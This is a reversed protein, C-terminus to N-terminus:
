PKQGVFFSFGTFTGLVQIIAFAVAFLMIGILANIIKSKAKALGEKDGGSTLWDWAGWILMFILVVMAMAYILAVLNSLFKSIGVSGFGFNMIATPPIIKGFIKGVESTVATSPNSCQPPTDTACATGSFGGQTYVVECGEPNCYNVQYKCAGKCNFFAPNGFEGKGVPNGSGDRVSSCTDGTYKHNTAVKDGIINASLVDDGDKHGNCSSDAFAPQSILFISIFIIFIIAIKM